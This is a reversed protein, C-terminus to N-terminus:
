VLMEMADQLLDDDFDENLRLLMTLFVDRMEVLKVRDKLIELVFGSLAEEVNEGNKASMEAFHM